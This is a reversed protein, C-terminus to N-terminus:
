RSVSVEREDIEGITHNLSVQRMAQEYETKFESKVLTLIIEKWWSACGLNIARLCGIAEEPRNQRLYYLAKILLIAPGGGDPFQRPVEGSFLVKLWNIMKDKEAEEIPRIAADDIGNELDHILCGSFFRVTWLLSSPFDDGRPVILNIVDDRAENRIWMRPSCGETKMRLTHAYIWRYLPSASACGSTFAELKLLPHVAENPTVKNVPVDALNKVIDVMGFDEFNDVIKIKGVSNADEFMNLLYHCATVSSIENLKDSLSHHMALVHVNFTRMVLADNEIFINITERPSTIQPYPHQNLDSIMFQLMRSEFYKTSISAVEAGTLEIAAGDELTGIAGDHLLQPYYARVCTFCIAQYGLNIYEISKSLEQNSHLNDPALNFIIGKNKFAFLASANHVSGYLNFKLGVRFREAKDITSLFDHELENLEIQCFKIVSQYIKSEKFLDILRSEISVDLVVFRGQLSPLNGSALMCPLFNELFMTFYEDGWVAVSIVIPEVPQHAITRQSLRLNRETLRRFWILMEYSDTKEYQDFYANDTTDRWLQYINEDFHYFAFFFLDSMRDFYNEGQNCGEVEEDLIECLRHVLYPNAFSEIGNETAIASLLAVKDSAIICVDKENNFLEGARKPSLIKRGCFDGTKFGDIFAYVLGPRAAETYEFLMKGFVSAGYIFVRSSDDYSSPKFFPGEVQIDKKHTKM